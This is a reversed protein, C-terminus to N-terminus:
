VLPHTIFKEFTEQQLAFDLGKVQEISFLAMRRLIRTITKQPQGEYQQLNRNLALRIVRELTVVEQVQTAVVITKQAICKRVREQTDNKNKSCVL